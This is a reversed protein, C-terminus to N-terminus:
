KRRFSLTPKSAATVGAPLTAGNDIAELIKADSLRRQVFDTRGNEVAWAVIAPWLEPEYSCYWKTGRTATGDATSLKAGDGTMGQQDMSAMLAAELEDWEAGLVKLAANHEDTADSNARLRRILEAPTLM